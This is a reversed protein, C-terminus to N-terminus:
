MRRRPSRRPAARAEARRCSASSTGRTTRAISHRSPPFIPPHTPPHPTRVLWFAFNASQLERTSVHRAHLPVLHARRRARPALAASTLPTKANCSSPPPTCHSAACKRILASSSSASILRHRSSSSRCRRARARTHMEKGRTPRHQDKAKASFHLAHEPRGILPPADVSHLALTPM